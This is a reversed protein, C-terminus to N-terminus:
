AASIFSMFFFPSSTFALFSPNVGACRKKMPKPCTQHSFLLGSADSSEAFVLGWEGPLYRVLPDTCFKGSNPLANPQLTPCGIIGCFGHRTQYSVHPVAMMATTAAPMRARRKRLRQSQYPLCEQRGQRLEVQVVAAILCGTM